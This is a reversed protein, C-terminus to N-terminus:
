EDGLDESEQSNRLNAAIQRWEELLDKAPATYVRQLRDIPKDRNAEDVSDLEASLREQKAGRYYADRASVNSLQDGLYTEHLPHKAIRKGRKLDPEQSYPLVKADSPEVLLEERMCEYIAQEREVDVHYGPSEELRTDKRSKAVTFSDPSWVFEAQWESARELPMVVAEVELLFRYNPDIGSDITACDQSLSPLEFDYVSVDRGTRISVPNRRSTRKQTKAKLEEEDFVVGVFGAIPSMSRNSGGVSSNAGANFNSIRGKLIVPQRGAALDVESEWVMLLLKNNSREFILRGDTEDLIQLYISSNQLSGWNPNGSGKRVALVITNQELPVSAAKNCAKAAWEEFTHENNRTAPICLPSNWASLLHQNVESPISDGTGLLHEEEFEFELRLSAEANRPGQPGLARRTWNHSGLYVISKQTRQNYIYVLKSHFLAVNKPEDKEEVVPDMFYKLRVDEFEDQLSLLPEHKCACSLSAVGFSRSDKLARILPARNISKIGEGSVYAVLFRCVTAQALDKQLSTRYDHTVLDKSLFRM